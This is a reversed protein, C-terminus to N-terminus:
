KEKKSIGLIKEKFKYWYVKITIGAGVLAGIIVQIILSGSGPDIYAYADSVFVGGFVFVGLLISINLNKM